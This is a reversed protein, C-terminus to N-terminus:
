DQAGDTRKQKRTLNRAVKLRMGSLKQWYILFLYFPIRKDDSVIRQKEKQQRVLIKWAGALRKQWKFCPVMM